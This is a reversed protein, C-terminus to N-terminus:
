EARAKVLKIVSAVYAAMFMLVIVPLFIFGGLLLILFLIGPNQSGGGQCFDHMSDFYSCSVGLWILFVITVIWLIITVKNLLGISGKKKWLAYNCWLYGGVFVFLVFLAAYDIEM